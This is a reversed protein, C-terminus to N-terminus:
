IKEVSCKLLNSAEVYGISNELYAKSVVRNFLSGNSDKMSNTYNGGEKEKDRAAKAQLNREMEELIEQELSDQLEKRIRGLEKLRYFIFIESVKYRDWM